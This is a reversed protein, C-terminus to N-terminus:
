YSLLTGNIPNLNVINGCDPSSFWHLRWICTINYKEKFDETHALEYTVFAIYNKHDRFNLYIDTVSASDLVEQGTIIDYKKSYYDTDMTVIESTCGGDSWIFVKLYDFTTNSIFTYIWSTCKGDFPKIDPPIVIKERINPASYPRPNVHAIEYGSIGSLKADTKWQKANTNALDIWDHSTTSILTSNTGIFGGSDGNVDVSHIISGLYSYYVTWITDGNNNKHLWYFVSTEPYEKLIEAGGNDRAVEAISTSDKYSNIIKDVYYGTDLAKPNSGDFIISKDGKVGFGYFRSKSDSYYIFS